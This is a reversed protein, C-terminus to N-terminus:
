WLLGSLDRPCALRWAAEFPVQHPPKTLTNLFWSLLSEPKNLYSHTFWWWKVIVWFLNSSHRLWENVRKWPWKEERRMQQFLCHLELVFEASSLGDCVRTFVAVLLVRFWLVGHLPGCLDKLCFPFHNINYSWFFFFFLSLSFFSFFFFQEKPGKLRLECQLPWSTGARPYSHQPKCSTLLM